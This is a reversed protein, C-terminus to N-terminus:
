RVQDSVVGGTQFERQLFATVFASSIRASSAASAIAREHFRVEIYDLQRVVSNPHGSFTAGKRKASTPRVRAPTRDAHITGPAMRDGGHIFTTVPVALRGAMMGM